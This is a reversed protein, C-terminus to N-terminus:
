SKPLVIKLQALPITYLIEVKVPQGGNVTIHIERDLSSGRMASIAVMQADSIQSRPDGLYRPEWREKKCDINEKVSIGAEDPRRGQLTFIIYGYGVRHCLLLVAIEFPSLNSTHKM